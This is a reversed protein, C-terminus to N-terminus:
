LRMDRSLVAIIGNTLIHDVDNGKGPSHLQTSFLWLGFLLDHEPHYILFLYKVVLTGDAPSCIHGIRLQFETEAGPAVTVVAVAFLVNVAVGM